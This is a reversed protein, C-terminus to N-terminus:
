VPSPKPIAPGRTDLKGITSQRNESGLVSHQGKMPVAVQKYVVPKFKERFNVLRGQSLTLGIHNAALGSLTRSFSARTSPAPRTRPVTVDIKSEQAAREVPDAVRGPTTEVESSM